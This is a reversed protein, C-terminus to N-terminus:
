VTVQPPVELVHKSDYMRMDAAICLTEVDLADEPFVAIGVSAGIRVKYEGLQLPEDLLKLLSRRVLEAASRDTPEALIV